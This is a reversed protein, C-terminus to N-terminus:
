PDKFFMEIYQEHHNIVTDTELTSPTDYALMVMTLAEKVGMTPCSAASGTYVFRRKFPIWIDYYVSADSGSDELEGREVYLDRAKARLTRLLKVGRFKDSNIPDLMYNGTITRFMEDPFDGQASNHECLWLKIITNRRDYPLTFTGRIRFGLCYIDSGNRSSDGVNQSLKTVGANNIRDHITFPYLVNHKFSSLNSITASSRISKSEALKFVVSKVFRSM